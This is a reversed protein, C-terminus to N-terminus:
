PRVGNAHSEDRLNADATWTVHWLTEDIDVKPVKFEMQKKEYERIEYERIGLVHM